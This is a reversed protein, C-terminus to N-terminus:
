LTILPLSWRRYSFWKVNLLNLKVALQMLSVTYRLFIFHAYYFTPSAQYFSPLCRHVTTARQVAPWCTSRDIRHWPHSEDCFVGWEGLNDRAWYLRVTCLRTRFCWVNMQPRCCWDIYKWISRMMLHILYKLVACPWHLTFIYSLSLMHHYCM